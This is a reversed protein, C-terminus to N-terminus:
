KMKKWIREERGRPKCASEGGVAYIGVGTGFDSTSLVTKTGLVYNLFVLLGNGTVALHNSQKTFGECLQMTKM